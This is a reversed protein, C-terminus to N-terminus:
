FLSLMSLILNLIMSALIFYWTYRAFRKAAAAEKLVDEMLLLQVDEACYAELKYYRDGSEGPMWTYQTKFANPTMSAKAEMYEEKSIEVKHCYKQKLADLRSM